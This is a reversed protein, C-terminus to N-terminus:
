EKEGKGELFDVVLRNVLIASFLHYFDCIIWIFKETKSNTLYKFFISNRIAEFM